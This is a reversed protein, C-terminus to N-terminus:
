ALQINKEGTLCWQRLPSAALIGGCRTARCPMANPMAIILEKSIASPRWHRNFPGRVVRAVFTATVSTGDTLNFDVVVFKMLGFCAKPRLKLKEAENYPLICTSITQMMSLGLETLKARWNYDSEIAFLVAERPGSIVSFQPASKDV